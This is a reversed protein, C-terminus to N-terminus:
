QIKLTLLNKPHFFFLTPSSAHKDAICSPSEREKYGKGLMCFGRELRSPLFYPCLGCHTIKEILPM